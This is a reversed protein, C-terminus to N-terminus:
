EISLDSDKQCNTSEQDQYARVMPIKCVRINKHVSIKTGWHSNLVNQNVYGQGGKNGLSGHTIMKNQVGTTIENNGQLEM